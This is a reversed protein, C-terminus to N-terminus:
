VFWLKSVRGPGAPQGPRGPVPVPSTSSFIPFTMVRHSRASGAPQGPLVWDFVRNYGTSKQKKKVLVVDNQNKKLIPISGPSGTVQDFGPVQVPGPKFVIIYVRCSVIFKLILLKRVSYIKFDIPSFYIDHNFHSNGIGNARWLNM